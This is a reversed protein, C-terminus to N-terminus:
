TSTWQVITRRWDAGGGAEATTSRDRTSWDCRFRWICQISNMIRLRLSASRYFEVRRVSYFDCCVRLAISVLTAGAISLYILLEISSEFIRSKSERCEVQHLRSCNIHENLVQVLQSNLSDALTLQGRQICPCMFFASLGNTTLASINLKTFM